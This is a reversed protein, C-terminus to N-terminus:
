ARARLFLRQQEVLGSGRERGPVWALLELVATAAALAEGESLEALERRRIEALVPGARRWIDVVCREHDAVLGM